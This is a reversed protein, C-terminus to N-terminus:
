NKIEISLFFVYYGDPVRGVFLYDSQPRYLFTTFAKVIHRLSRLHVNQTLWSIFLFYSKKAQLRNWVFPSRLEFWDSLAFEFDDYEWRRCLLVSDSSPQVLGFFHIISECRWADLMRSLLTFHYILMDRRSEVSLASSDIIYYNLTIYEFMSWLFLVIQSWVYDIPMNYCYVSMFFVLPHGVRIQHKEWEKMLTLTENSRLLVVNQVNKSGRRLDCNHKTQINQTKKKEPKASCIHAHKEHPRKRSYYTYVFRFHTKKGEFGFISCWLWWLHWKLIM